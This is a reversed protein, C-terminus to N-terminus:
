VRWMYFPDYFANGILAWSPDTEWGLVPPDHIWGRYM